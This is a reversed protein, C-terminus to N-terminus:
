APKLAGTEVVVAGTGVISAGCAHYGRLFPGLHHYPQWIVYKHAAPHHEHYSQPIQMDIPTTFVIFYDREDEM